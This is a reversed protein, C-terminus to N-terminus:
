PLLRPLTIMVTTGHCLTSEYSLGYKRGYLLQLRHHVNQAGYNESPHNLLEELKEPTIGMGNDSVTFVIEDACIQNKIQLIKENSESPLLGHIIANEAIPQLTLTPIQYQCSEPDISYIIQFKGPHLLRQIEIYSYLNNMEDQISSIMKGSNLTTRYFTSLLQTVQSIDTQKALIAKWNILSLTNYLFHPNIQAQLANYKYQQLMIQTKYVEDILFQLRAIMHNFSTILEGIEDKSSPNILPSFNEQEVQKINETLKQLPKVLINTLSLGLRFILFLTFLICLFFIVLISQAKYTITHNNRYLCITWNASPITLPSSAFLHNSDVIGGQAYKLLQEGGIAFSPHSFTEYQYIPVWSEDYIVVGYDNDFISTFHGFTNEYDIRMYLYNTYSSGYYYLKRLMELVGENNIYICLAYDDTLHDYCPYQFLEDLPHLYTGHPYIGTNSFFTIQQLSHISMIRDIAPDIINRYALYMEASNEYENFVANIISTDSSLNNMADICNNLKYELISTNQRLNEQILIEERDRLLSSAQFFGLIGLILTPIVGIIINSILIKPAFKLNRIKTSLFDTKM